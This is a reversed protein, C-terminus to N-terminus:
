MLDQRLFFFIDVTPYQNLENHEGENGKANKTFIVDDRPLWRFCASSDECCGGEVNCRDSHRRNMRVQEGIETGAEARHTSAQRRHAPCISRNKVGGSAL